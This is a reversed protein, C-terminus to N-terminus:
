QIITKIQQNNRLESLLLANTFPSIITEEVHLRAQQPVKECSISQMM